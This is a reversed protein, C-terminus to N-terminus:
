KTEHIQFIGSEVKDFNDIRVGKVFHKVIEEKTKIDYPSVLIYTRGLETEVKYVYQGNM